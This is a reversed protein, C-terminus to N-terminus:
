FTEGISTMYDLINDNMGKALGSCINMITGPSLGAFIELNNDISTLYYIANESCIHESKQCRKNDPPIDVRWVNIDCPRRSSFDLLAQVILEFYIRSYPDKQDETLTYRSNRYCPLDDKRVFWYDIALCKESYFRSVLSKSRLVEIIKKDPLEKLVVSEIYLLRTDRLNM